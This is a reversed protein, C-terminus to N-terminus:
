VLTITWGASKKPSILNAWETSYEGDVDSGWFVDGPNPYDPIAGYGRFERNVATRSFTISKGSAYIPEDSLASVFSEISPKSLKTSWQLNIGSQAIIGSAKLNVLEPCENFIGNFRTRDGFVVEDITHLYPMQAFVQSCTGGYHSLDIKGIRTFNSKLFAYSIETVIQSFDLEVGFENLKAPLDIVMTNEAFMRYPIYPRIDYKPAFTAESWGSGAFADSYNTRKGNQQYADWFADYETQKGAEFGENYGGANLGAEEGEQYGKNYGAEHVEDVNEHIMLLRETIGM